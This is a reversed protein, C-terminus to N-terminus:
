RVVRMILLLDVHCLYTQTDAVAEITSRIFGNVDARISADSKAAHLKDTFMAARFPAAILLSFKYNTRRWGETKRVRAFLLGIEM